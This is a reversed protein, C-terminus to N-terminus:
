TGGKRRRAKAPAAPRAPAPAPQWRKRQLVAEATPTHAEALWGGDPARTALVAEEPTHVLLGDDPDGDVHPRTWFSSM